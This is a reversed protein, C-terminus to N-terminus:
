PTADKNLFPLQVQWLDHGWIEGANALVLTGSDLVAFADFHLRDVPTTGHKEFEYGKGFFYVRNLTKGSELDMQYLASDSLLYAFGGIVKFDTFHPKPMSFNPDKKNKLYKEEFAEIEPGHIHFEKVLEFDKDFVRWIPRYAFLCHWRDGDRDWYTNNLAPNTRLFEIEIPLIDGVYRRREGGYGYVGALKQTRPYVQLVVDDQSFAFNPPWSQSPLQFSDVKFQQLFEGSEFYFLDTYSAKLLWVAQGEVAMAECGYRGLEGPGNGLRGIRRIFRGQADIQIVGPENRLLIFLEKGNTDIRYIGYMLTNPNAEDQFDLPHVFLNHAEGSYSCLSALWLFWCM